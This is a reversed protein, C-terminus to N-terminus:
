RITSPQRTALRQDLSAFAATLNTDGNWSQWFPALPSSEVHQKRKVDGEATTGVPHWDPGLARRTEALLQAAETDAQRTWALYARLFYGGVARPNTRCADALREEALAAKGRLLAIEGLVLLAGTEEPNLSRAKLLATEANDLDADSRAGIAKVVGWQQWARHSQPNLQQLKALAELAADFQDQSALCLGLYYYSDEHKPNLILAERFLGIAKANDQEVKMANMAARQKAWFDLQQQRNGTPQNTSGGATAPLTVIHSPPNAPALRHAQTEGEVLEYTANVDLSEFVNTAGAHWHVELKDVRDATGLGFHLARSSQSLYSVGTVSRRLPVGKVWAIATSGDGFGNAQGAANRSRLRLKLWHGTQMENRLLRVGEGLDSILVDEAGDGDFDAVALGRSVHAEALPKCLPALNHFFEGRRNWFLFPEEPKLTKPAPGDLELTSGNAVILDLWGDGDFDAFETGWSVCGLSIQGLGKADAIDLFRLAPSPRAPRPPSTLNTAASSTTTKAALRQLDVLLNDYLANEQGVWHGIYLDNDGDRNFDGVALGMASRYDAVLAPHGIDEFRGGLNHYFANDSIDNAVYLDLWGDNDVDHWVAGLSRGEPNGVGLQRAVEEFRGGLNHFLLNTAAPYSSPNLTYPVATGLQASIRARDADNATYQVYGCVYLDPQRDNDYDGWAAGSWYGPLNPFHSDRVFRGTGGENHFLLLTDFGTVLLDLYGDGDYDGWVAAMGHIRTEPFGDVKQFTGNGQNRYLECPALDGPAATMPGGASVLFVDDYGDNDFDGWAVGPGNDEPLQSSRGGAFTRFGDLGAARTVESFKPRPAEPPLERALESTIDDPKEDPRYQAPRAHRLWVLGAVVGAMLLLGLIVLTWRLRRQRRSLPPRGGHSPLPSTM